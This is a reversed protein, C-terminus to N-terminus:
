NVEDPRMLTTGDWFYVGEYGSVGLGGGWDLSVIYAVLDPEEAPITALIFNSDPGSIDPALYQFIQNGQVRDMLTGVQEFYGGTSLPSM